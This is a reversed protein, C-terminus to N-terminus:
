RALHQGPWRRAHQNLAEYAQSLTGPDGIQVRWCKDRARHVFVPRVPVDMYLIPAHKASLTGASEDTLDLNETTAFVPHGAALHTEAAQHEIWRCRMRSREEAFRHRLRRASWSTAAASPPSLCGLMPFHQSLALAGILPHPHPLGLLLAGGVDAPIEPADANRGSTPELLAYRHLWEPEVRSLILEELRRQLDLDMAERVLGEAARASVGLARARQTLGTSDRFRAEIRWTLGALARLVEPSEPPLVGRAIGVLALTFLVSQAYATRSRGAQGSTALCAPLM